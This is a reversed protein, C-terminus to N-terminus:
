FTKVVVFFLVPDCNINVRSTTNKIVSFYPSKVKIFCIDSGVLPLFMAFHLHSHLYQSQTPTAETPRCGLSPRSWYRFVEM